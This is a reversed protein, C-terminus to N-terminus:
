KVAAFEAEGTIISGVVRVAEELSMQDFVLFYEIGERRFEATILPYQGAPAHTTPDFPGYDMQREGFLVDTGAVSTPKLKSPEVYVCDRVLGLKSVTLSFGKPAPIKETLAPSGDKEYAHYFSLMVADDVITGDKEAYVRATGNLPSPTLGEPIYPPTLSAGFYAAIDDSNWTLEDYRAPDYAIKSADELESLENVFVASMPISLAKGSAADASKAGNESAAESAGAESTPSSATESSGKAGASEGSPKALKPFLMAIALVLVVAATIVPLYRRRANTERRNDDNGRSDDYFREQKM